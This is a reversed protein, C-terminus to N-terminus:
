VFCCGDALFQQDNRKENRQPMKQNPYDYSPKIASINQSSLVEAMRVHYLRVTMSPKM